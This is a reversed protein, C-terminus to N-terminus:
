KGEELALEGAEQLRTSLQGMTLLSVPIGALRMSPPDVGVVEAALRPV